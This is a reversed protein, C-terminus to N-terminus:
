DQIQAGEQRDCALKEMYNKLAALAEATEKRYVGKSENHIHKLLGGLCRLERIMVTDSHAIIPRGFYRRRVLESITLGAMDADEKLRAKEAATLRVTISADLPKSNPM